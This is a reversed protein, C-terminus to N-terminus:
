KEMQVSRCDNSNFSCKKYVCTCMSKHMIFFIQRYKDKKAYDPLNFKSPFWTRSWYDGFYYGACVLGYICISILRRVTGPPSIARKDETIDSSRSSIYEDAFVSIRCSWRHPFEGRGNPNATPAHTFVCVCVRVDINSRSTPICCAPFTENFLWIFASSAGTEQQM